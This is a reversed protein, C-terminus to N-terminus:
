RISGMWHGRRFSILRQGHGPDELGSGQGLLKGVAPILVLGSKLCANATQKDSVRDVNGGHITPLHPHPETEGGHLFPKGGGAPVGIQFDRAVHEAQRLEPDFQIPVFVHDVGDRSFNFFEFGTHLLVVSLTQAAMNIRFQRTDILGGEAVEFGFYDHLALMTM